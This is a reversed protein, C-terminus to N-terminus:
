LLTLFVILLGFINICSVILYSMGKRPSHLDTHWQTYDYCDNEERDVCGRFLCPRALFPFQPGNFEHPSLDV